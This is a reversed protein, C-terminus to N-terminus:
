QGIKEEELEEALAEPDLENDQKRYATMILLVVMAGLYAVTVMPACNFGFTSSHIIGFFSLIAGVLCYAAAKKYRKDIIYYVTASIVMAIIIDGQSLRQWGEFPVGNGSLLGFSVGM